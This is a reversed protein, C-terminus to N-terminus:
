KRMIFYALVAFLLFAAAIIGISVADNTSISFMEPDGIHVGTLRNDIIKGDSELCKEYCTADIYFGGGPIPDFLEPSSFASCERLCSGTTFDNSTADKAGPLIFVRPNSMKISIKHLNKSPFVRKRNKKM